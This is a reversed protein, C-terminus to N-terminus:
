PKVQKILNPLQESFYANYADIKKEKMVKKFVETPIAFQVYTVNAPLYAKYFTTVNLGNMYKVAQELKPFERVYMLQYGEASLLTNARLSELQHYEDNYSIIRQLLDNMDFKEAKTAFVYYHPADNMLTFEPKNLEASDIGGSKRPNNIADLISQAREAVDTKPYAKTIELLENKFAGVSDSKGVAYAYLLDFKAQMANGSYKKDVDAKGQKVATYNGSEYMHYLNEYAKVIERNTSSEATQVAKNQLILAYSSEPYKKLLEERVENAKGTESLTMYIKYLNYLVEPEYQNGPFRNLLSNYSAAAEKNDKLKESYIAGLNYYAEQIRDNSKQKEAATYPINKAWEARDDSVAPKTIEEEGGKDPAGSTGKEGQATSDRLTKGPEPNGQNPSKSKEKAAIRWFDENERRGWKRQSFFEQQGSNMVSTNYFYWQGQEGSGGLLGPLATPNTGAVPKNLKAQEEQEKRTQENKADQEQKLKAALIWGDIRQELETKSLKSLRQLSDEADIVLLNSILESLVNKKDQVRQYDKHEKPIVSAASDYYAQGLRYDPKALYIDGLALYSQAKQAQNKGGKAIAMQYHKTANPLDNDRQEVRALEYYVQDYLGENKDDKLMRRLNRKVQKVEKKDEPDYTRTLNLNANFEFDYPALLRTVKTFCAKAEAVSDQILYLQGLIYNYRIKHPKDTTNALAVKLKECAQVYKEQKLFIDAATAYVFARQAKTLKEIKVQLKEPIKKKGAFSMPAVESILLGIVAEAEGTKKLGDYCRAIWAKAEKNLDSQPYKSNIYQFTELAAYFDGKYFRAKGMLLYSDDTYTGVTHLQISKSTKKIVEDMPASLGKAAGEDPTIFVPLVRSFDNQVGKEFAEVAENFKVEGNFYVNYHGTLTHWKRNIWRDRTPKCATVLLVVVSVM